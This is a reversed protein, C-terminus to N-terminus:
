LINNDLIQKIKSPLLFRHYIRTYGNNTVEIVFYLIGNDNYYNQLDNISIRFNRKQESLKDVTKGKIQIPIKQLNEKNKKKDSHIFIIGDWSPTKDNKSLNHTIIDSESLFNILAAISKAEVDM